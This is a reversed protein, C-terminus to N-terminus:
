KLAAATTDFSLKVIFAEDCWNSRPPFNTFTPIATLSFCQVQSLDTDHYRFDLTFAKWTLGFGINWYNYDILPVSGLSAKTTGLWYRGFEGSTYAGIDNPLVGSPATLKLTGSAFTGSAGTNLWNSSYFLNAGVAVMPNFTYVAKGYFELFDTQFGFESPYYYYLLGIDLALPGFTPRIGGYIDIEAAPDSGFPRPFSVSLGGIGVYLQWDTIVNFRAEAYGGVGPSRNSQSIGRFNYDSQVLGGFAIDFVPTAPAAAVPAAKKAPAPADAAYAPAILACAAVVSLVLKKMTTGKRDRAVRLRAAM